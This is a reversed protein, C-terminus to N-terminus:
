KKKEFVITQQHKLIYGYINNNKCFISCDTYLKIFPKRMKTTHQPDSLFLKANQTFILAFQLSNNLQSHHRTM